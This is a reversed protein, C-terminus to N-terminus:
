AAWPEADGAGDIVIIEVLSNSWRTRDANSVM